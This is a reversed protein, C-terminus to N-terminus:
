PHLFHDFLWARLVAVAREPLGRQPRWVPQQPEFFIMSSGCSKQKQHEILKLGSTSVDCKMSSTTGGTPSSLDEGLTRGIHGLQESIVQKLCRFHRTVTRLAVSIYPAAASLGAVSEFSTVVMQM